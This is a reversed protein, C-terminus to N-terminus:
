PVLGVDMIQLEPRALDAIVALKKKLDMGARKEEVLREGLHDLETNLILNGLRLQEITRVRESISQYLKDITDARTDNQRQLQDREAQLKCERCQCPKPSSESVVSM